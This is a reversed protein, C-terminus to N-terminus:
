ETEPRKEFELEDNLGFDEDRLEQRSKMQLRTAEQEELEHGEEDDSDLQDANSSYYAYKGQGWSEEADDEEEDSKNQTKSKRNVKKSKNEKKTKRSPEEEIEDQHGDSEEENESDDQV